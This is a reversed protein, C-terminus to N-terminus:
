ALPPAPRQGARDPGQDPPGLAEVARVDVASM